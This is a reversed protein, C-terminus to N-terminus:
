SKEKKGDEEGSSHLQSVQAAFVDEKGGGVGIGTGWESWKVALRREQPMGLMGGVSRASCVATPRPTPTVLSLSPFLSLSLTINM